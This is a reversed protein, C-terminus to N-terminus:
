KGVNDKLLDFWCQSTKIFMVYLILVIQVKEILPCIFVTCIKLFAFESGFCLICVKSSYILNNMLVYYTM